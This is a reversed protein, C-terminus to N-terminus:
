RGTEWDLAERMGRAAAERKEREGGRGDAGSPPMAEGKRGRRTINFPLDRRGVEGGLALEGGGLLGGRRQAVERRADHRGM